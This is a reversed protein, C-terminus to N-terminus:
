APVPTFIEENQLKKLIKGGKVSQVGNKVKPYEKNGYLTSSNAKQVKKNKINRETDM